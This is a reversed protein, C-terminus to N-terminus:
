QAPLSSFSGDVGALHSLLLLFLFLLLFHFSFPAGCLKSTPLIERAEKIQKNMEPEISPKWDQKEGRWYSKGGIEKHSDAYSIAFTKTLQSTLCYYKAKIQLAQFHKM